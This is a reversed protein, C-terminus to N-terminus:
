AGVCNISSAMGFFCKSKQEKKSGEGLQQPSILSLGLSSMRLNFQNSAYVKWFLRFLNLKLKQTPIM